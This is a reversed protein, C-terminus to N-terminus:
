WAFRLEIGLYNPNSGGARRITSGVQFHGSRARCCTTRSRGTRGCSPTPGRGSGPQGATRTGTYEARYLGCRREDTAVPLRPSWSACTGSYSSAHPVTERAAPERLYDMRRAHLLLRQPFASQLHGATNRRPSPRWLGCRGALRGPAALDGHSVYLGSLTGVAWARAQKLASLAENVWARSIGISATWRVQM